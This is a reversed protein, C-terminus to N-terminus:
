TDPSVANCAVARGTCQRVKPYKRVIREELDAHTKAYRSGKMLVFCTDPRGSGNAGGAGAKPQPKDFGCFKVLDKDSLVEYGRPGMTVDVFKKLTSVDKLGLPPVQRPKTWPATEFLTPQWDKKLRFREWVTKGSPMVQSCNVLAFGLQTASKMKSLDSFITPVAEDQRGRHCYFLYPLDGLLAEKLKDDDANILNRIPSSSSSWMAIGFLMVVLGVVGQFIVNRHKQLFSSGDDKKSSSTASGTKKLLM